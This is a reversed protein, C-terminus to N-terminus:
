REELALNEIIQEAGPTMNRIKGAFVAKESVSATAARRRIKGIKAQRHRRRKLEKRRESCSVNTEGRLSFTL